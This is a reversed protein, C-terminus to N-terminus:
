IRSITSKNVGYKSALYSYGVGNEKHEKIEERTEQTLRKGNSRREEMTKAKEAESYKKVLLTIQEGEISPIYTGLYEFDDNYGEAYQYYLKRITSSPINGTLCRFNIEDTAFLFSYDKYTLKYYDYQQMM